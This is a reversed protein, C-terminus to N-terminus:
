RQQFGDQKHVTVAMRDKSGMSIFGEPKYGMNNAVTFANGMTSVIGIPGISFRRESGDDLIIRLQYTGDPYVLIVQRHLKAHEIAELDSQFIREATDSRDVWVRCEGSSWANAITIAEDMSMPNDPHKETFIGNEPNIRRVHWIDRTAM